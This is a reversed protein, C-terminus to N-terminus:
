YGETGKLDKDDEIFLPKHGHEDFYNEMTSRYQSEEGCFAFQELTHMRRYDSIMRFCAERKSEQTWAILADWDKCRREQGDGIKHREQTTPM